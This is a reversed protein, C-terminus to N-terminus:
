ERRSEATSKTEYKISSFIHGDSLFERMNRHIKKRKHVNAGRKGGL